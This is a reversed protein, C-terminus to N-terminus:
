NKPILKLLTDLPTGGNTGNLCNITSGYNHIAIIQGDNNLIPSGCVGKQTPVSYNIMNNTVYTVEGINSLFDGKLNYYVLCKSMVKPRAGVSFSPRGQQLTPLYFACIEDSIISKVDVFDFANELVEGKHYIHLIFQDALPNLIPKGDSDKEEKFFCHTSGVVWGAVLCTNSEVGGCLSRFIRSRVVDVKIPNVGFLAEKPRKKEEKQQKPKIEYNAGLLEALLRARQMDDIPISGKKSVNVNEKPKRHFHSKENCDNKFCMVRHHSKGCEKPTNCYCFRPDATFNCKTHDCTV